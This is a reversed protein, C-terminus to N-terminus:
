PADAAEPPRHEANGYLNDFLKLVEAVVPASRFTVGLFRGKLGTGPEQMHALVEWHDGTKLAIFGFGDAILSNWVRELKPVEARAQSEDLVRAVVGEGAHADHQRIVSAIIPDLSGDAPRVFIRRVKPGLVGATQRGAAWEYQAEYYDAVPRTGWPKHGCLARIETTSPLLSRVREAFDAFGGFAPDHHTTLEETAGRVSDL